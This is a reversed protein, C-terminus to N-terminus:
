GVAVEFFLSEDFYQESIALIAEPTLAEMRTIMQQYHDPRLDYLAITKIKEAHAFPTTIESQLSGIFHNRATELEDDSIKETRLRKLEKRIEDFTLSVNEKNVDAGIVLYSDHKLGHISASIGYTLGKEERINKMLRSGFYGGLIHSVFLISAYEPHSRLVSRVGMRVSSQVSEKKELYKRRPQRESAQHIPQGHVATGLQQFANLMLRQNADEIKGSVFVLPPNEFQRFHRALDAVELANVDHAEIEKGYPHKNGFLNKRFLQSAVYSTKENNVKLNQNFVTQTQRFEQKPFTPESLIEILLGLLSTLNKNLTYLSISVYDLGPSVELHAGYQDFLHAIEYSSKDKTGKSLLQATFYAAASKEEFWRGAEFVFEIKLVDQFGGPVFYVHLGNSLKREVPTILNFSSSKAFPPAVTREPM